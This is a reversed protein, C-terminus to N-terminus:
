RKTDSLEKGTKGHNPSKRSFMARSCRRAVQRANYRGGGQRRRGRHQLEKAGCPRRPDGCRRRSPSSPGFPATRVGPRVIPSSGPQGCVRPLEAPDVEGRQQGGQDVARVHRPWRLVGGRALFRGTEPPIRRLRALRPTGDQRDRADMEELQRMRSRIVEPMDHFMFIRGGPVRKGPAQPFGIFTVAWRTMSLGRREPSLETGATPPSPAVCRYAGRCLSDLLCFAPALARRPESAGGHM